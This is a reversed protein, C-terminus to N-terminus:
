KGLHCHFDQFVVLFELDFHILYNVFFDLHVNNNKYYNYTKLDCLILNNKVKNNEFSVNVLISESSDVIEFRSPKM